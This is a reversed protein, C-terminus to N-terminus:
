ALADPDLILFEDRWQDILQKKAKQMRDMHAPQVMILFSVHGKYVAWVWAENSTIKSLRQLTQPLWVDRPSRPLHQYVVLSHGAQWAVDLEADFVFKTSGSRGIRTSKIAMGNDPDFFLVDKDPSTTLAAKMYARREDARASLVQGQFVTQEGLLSSREIVSLNRRQSSVSDVLLDFLPPDYSRWREPDSLYAIHRGDSRDDNPTRMWVVGLSLGVRVLIRLLGYKRYDNIDGFYQDKV